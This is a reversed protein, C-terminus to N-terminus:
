RGAPKKHRCYSQGGQGQPQERLGTTQDPERGGCPLEGAPGRRCPHPRQSVSGTEAGSDAESGAGAQAHRGRGEGQFTAPGGRRGLARACTEAPHASIAHRYNCSPVDRPPPRREGQRWRSVGRRGRSGAAEVTEGPQLSAGSTNMARCPARGARRVAVPRVPRSAPRAGALLWCGAAGIRTSSACCFCLWYWCATLRRNVGPGPGRRLEAAWNPDPDVATPRFCDSLSFAASSCHLKGGRFESLLLILM